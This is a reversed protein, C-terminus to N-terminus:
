SVDGDDPLRGSFRPRPLHDGMPANGAARSTAFGEIETVIFREGALPTM